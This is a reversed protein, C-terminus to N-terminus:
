NAEGAKTEGGNQKGTKEREKKGKQRWHSTAGQFM